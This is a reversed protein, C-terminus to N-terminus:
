QKTIFRQGRAILNTLTGRARKWGGGLLVAAVIAIVMGISLDFMTRRALRLLFWVARLSLPTKKRRNTSTATNGWRQREQEDEMQDLDDEERSTWFWGQRREDRRLIIAQTRELTTMREHLATLSTQIQQLTYPLNLPAVAFTSASGARPYQINHGIGMGAYPSAGLLEPTAAFDRHIPGPMIPTHPRSASAMPHLSQEPMFGLASPTPPQQRHRFSHISEKGRREGALSHTRSDVQPAQSFAFPAASSEAYEAQQSMSTPQHLNLLSKHSANLASPPIYEPSIDPPPLTPDPPPFLQQVPSPPSARSSHFSSTSSSPSLPM